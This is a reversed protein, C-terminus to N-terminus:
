RLWVREDRWAQRGIVEGGLQYSLTGELGTQDVQVGLQKIQEIKQQENPKLRAASWVAYRPQVAQIFEISNAARGRGLILLDAQLEACLLRLMQETLQGAGGMVLVRHRQGLANPATTVRLVCSLERRDMQTVEPWPALMEFLVGDWTWTQGAACPQIKIQTDEFSGSVQQVKLRELVPLMGGMQQQDPVSLLLRDLSKVGYASLTPLVVRRAANSTGTDFLMQHNPTQLLVSLGQGVDLVRVQLQTQADGIGHSPYFLPLLLFGSMGLPLVRRPLLWVLVLLLAAALAVGSLRHQWVLEPRGDLLLHLFGHFQQLIWLACQWVQDALLPLVPWLLLGLLNLGLVVVSLLPIAILNVPVALWSFQGFVALVLPLLGLTILWQLMVFQKVRLWMRQPLPQDDGRESPRRALWLLVWVAGFSLWFAASLVALPDLLLLIAAAVSLVKFTPWRLRWWALGAVLVTMLVTRQAPLEWGALLAYGIVVLVFIPLLWRRREMRLYLRPFRNLLLGVAWTLVAAALLVHPGSIALLHAIGADQYLQRHQDSILARDGTLLGLLVGHSDPTFTQFHERLQLRLQDVREIISLSPKSHIQEAHLLEAQAGIGRELVLWRELDFAGLSARGRVPTLKAKIQWIEGARMNPPTATSSSDMVYPLGLLWQEPLNAQPVVPRVVQRWAQDVADSLGVVRVVVDVTQETLLREALRQQLTSQTYSIAALGILVPWIVRLIGMNKQTLWCTAALLVSLLCGIFLLTWDILVGGHLLPIALIVGFCWALASLYM